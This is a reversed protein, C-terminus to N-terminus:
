LNKEFFIRDVGDKVYHHFRGIERFGHREYFQPAQFSLTEIFVKSLGLSKAEGIAQDLLRSGHGQGRLDESLWLYNIQMRDIFISATLGGSIKGTKDRIFCGWKKENLDPLAAKNFEVLGEYITALQQETPSYTVEKKIEDKNM